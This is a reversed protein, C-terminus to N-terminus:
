EVPIGRFSRLRAPVGSATYRAHEDAERQVKGWDIPHVLIEARDEMRDCMASLAIPAGLLATDTVRICEVPRAALQCSEIERDIAEAATM